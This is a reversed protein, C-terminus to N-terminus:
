PIIRDGNTLSSRIQLDRSWELVFALALSITRWRTLYKSALNQLPIRKMMPHPNCVKTEAQTIEDGKPKLNSM